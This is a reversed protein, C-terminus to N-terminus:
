RKHGCRNSGIIQDEQGIHGTQIRSIRATIRIGSRDGVNEVWGLDIRQFFAGPIAAAPPSTAHGCFQSCGADGRGTADGNVETIASLGFRQLRHQATSASSGHKVRM